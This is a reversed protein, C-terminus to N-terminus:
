WYGLNKAVNPWNEIPREGLNRKVNALVDSPESASRSCLEFTSVIENLANEDPESQHEMKDCPIQESFYNSANPGQAQKVGLEFIRNCQRATWRQVNESLTIHMRDPMFSKLGYVNQSCQNPAKLIGPRQYKVRREEDRITILHALGKKAGDDRLDFDPCILKHWQVITVYGMPIKNGYVGSECKLNKVIENLIQMQLSALRRVATPRKSTMTPTYAWPTSTFIFTHKIENAAASLLFREVSLRLEDEMKFLGTHGNLKWPSMFSGDQVVLYPPQKREIIPLLVDRMFDSRSTNPQRHLMVLTDLKCMKCSARGFNKFISQGNHYAIEYQIHSAGNSCKTKSLARHLRESQSDGIILVESDDKIASSWPVGQAYEVEPLAASEIAGQPNVQDDTALVVLIAVCGTSILGAVFVKWPPLKGGIKMLPLEMFHFSLLALLISLTVLGLDRFLPGMGPQRGSASHMTNIDSDGFWVVLPWHVIYTGYSIVGLHVVPPSNLFRTLLAWWPYPTESSQLVAGIVGSLLVFEFPIRFWHFYERLLVEKPIPIISGFLLGLVIVATLIEYVVRESFTLKPLDPSLMYRQFLSDPFLYVCCAGFGGVAFDGARTWSLYYAASPGQSEYVQVGIYQSFMIATVEFVFLSSVMKHVANGGPGITRPDAKGDNGAEPPKTKMNQPSLMKGIAIVASFVIPWILYYQEEVALSWLHRAISAEQFDAFYDNDRWVLNFNEGYGLAWLLDYRLFYQEEPSSTSMGLWGYRKFIGVIAIIAILMNIAPLLRIVRRQYFIIASFHGKKQYQKLAMTTILLGSLMFFLGICVWASYVNGLRMHYMLVLFCGYGRLGDLVTHRKVKAEVHKDGPKNGIEVHSSDAVQDPM